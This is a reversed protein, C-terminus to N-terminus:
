SEASYALWRYTATLGSKLGYQPRFGLILEAKDITPQSHTIDGKRSSAHTIQLNTKDMITLITKALDNITIKEGSGINFTEGDARKEQAALMNAQIVDDIHIFDRTQNGDGYITLSEDKLAKEIFKIIVGSYPSPTQGPGYINFYRLIVCSIGYEDRYKACLAEGQVKTEAYPSLPMLSTDEKTPVISQKGYVASSSAFILRKVDNAIAAELVNQLGLVNNEWYLDPLRMSENVDILAAEHFIVDVDRLNGQLFHKDLIDGKVFSFNTCSLIHRINEISGRSLNDIGIVQSNQRVLTEALHSGVFGAVGTVLIKEPNLSTM